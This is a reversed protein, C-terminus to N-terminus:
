PANKSSRDSYNYKWIQYFWKPIDDYEEMTGLNERIELCREWDPHKLKMRHYDNQTWHDEPNVADGESRKADKSFLVVIVGFVLLAIFFMFGYEQFLSAIVYWVVLLAAIIFLAIWFNHADKNSM